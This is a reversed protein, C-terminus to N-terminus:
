FESLSLFALAGAHLYKGKNFVSVGRNEQYGDRKKEFIMRKQM